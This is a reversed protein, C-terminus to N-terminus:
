TAMLTFIAEALVLNAREFTGAPDEPRLCHHALFLWDHVVYARMYSRPNIGPILWAPRPVSGGDTIMRGPTIREGNKRTFTFENGPGPLYDYGGGGRDRLTYDGAFAGGRAWDPRANRLYRRWLWSDFAAPDDLGEPPAAAPAAAPPA